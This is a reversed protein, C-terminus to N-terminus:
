ERTRLAWRGDTTRQIGEAHALTAYVTSVFNRSRTTLGRSLLGEAIERTSQPTGSHALWHRAADTIRLNRYELSEPEDRPYDATMTDALQQIAREVAKLERLKSERLRELAGLAHHVQTATRDRAVAARTHSGQTTGTTTHRGIVAM